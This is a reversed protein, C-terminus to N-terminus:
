GVFEAIETILMHAKLSTFSLRTLAVGQNFILTVSKM